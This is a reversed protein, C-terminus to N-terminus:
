TPPNDLSFHGIKGSRYDNLLLDATKQWDPGGGKGLAGRSRAIHEFCAEVGEIDAPLDYRASLAEPYRQLLLELAFWAIDENDIATNRITGTMALKYAGEQDELRPWLLGPTDVLYWQEDLRIRQQGKTVAPENGTKALKRGALANLLSSKGVNPIGAIVVQGSKGENVRLNLKRIAGLLQEKSLAQTLDSIVCATKDLANFHDCWALTTVPDALDAKNLVKLRPLDGCLEDLRPNSSSQPIRADLVEILLKSGPLIKGLEKSAKHMHGPYWSIKM